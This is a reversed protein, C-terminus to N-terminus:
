RKASSSNPRTEVQELIDETLLFPMIRLETRAFKVFENKTLISFVTRHNIGTKRRLGRLFKGQNLWLSKHEETKTFLVFGRHLLPRRVKKLFHSFM